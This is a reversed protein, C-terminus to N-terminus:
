FDMIMKIFDIEKKESEVLEFKTVFIAQRFNVDCIIYVFKSPIPHPESVEYIKGVTLHTNNPDKGICRIKDGVKFEM